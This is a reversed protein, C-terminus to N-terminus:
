SNVIDRAFQVSTNEFNIDFTKLKTCSSKEVTNMYYSNFLKTLQKEDIMIKNKHILTIGNNGILGENTLFHKIFKSFSKNTTLDREKLKQLLKQHM